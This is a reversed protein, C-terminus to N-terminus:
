KTSVVRTEIPFQQRYAAGGVAIVGLFLLWAAGPEPVPAVGSSPAFPFNTQWIVFDAGDVNGDSNADGM